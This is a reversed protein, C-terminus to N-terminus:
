TTASSVTKLPNRWSAWRGSYRSHPSSDAPAHIIRTQPGCLLVQESRVILDVCGDAPIIAPGGNISRWLM